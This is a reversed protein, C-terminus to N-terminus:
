LYFHLFWAKSFTWNFSSDLGDILVQYVRICESFYKAALIVFLVLGCVIGTLVSQWVGLPCILGVSMAFILTTIFSHIFFYISEASFLNKKVYLAKSFRLAPTEFGEGTDVCYSKGKKKLTSYYVSQVTKKTLAEQRIGFLVTISQCCLWYVEKYIRYRIIVLSLLIGVIAAALFIFGKIQWSIIEISLAFPILFSFIALYLTIIQDRKTQQLGLEDFAREYLANLDIDAHDKMEYSDIQACVFKACDTTKSM